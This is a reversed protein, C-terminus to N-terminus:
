PIEPFVDRRDRRAGNWPQLYNVGDYTHELYANVLRMEDATYQSRHCAFSEVGAALDQPEFPVRLTLLSDAVGTVGPRAAPATRLRSAPLGAYFLDVAFPLDGGQVIETVVDGTLRHDPHGTGGERGFTIIVAPQVREMAERLATRLRSLSAFSALGADELELRHIRRIGLKQAACRVEAVRADALPKGAPIGAHERVGRSGDTAVVLHVERGARTLRNLLPGIVREDDPHAFVAMVPRSAPVRGAPPAATAVARQSLEARSRQEGGRMVHTVSRFARIDTTPDDALLLLDALKGPELTGFDQERGMARAGNRTAMVIIDAAPLGAAEMAEMEQYISPGHLTLPNGADTAVVIRGGAAHVRRLNEAMIGSRAGVFELRRFATEASRRDAPILARLPEVNAIKAVTASDVCGGPDDVPHPVGLEIASRARSANRGVVLTPAYVADNRKLLAIFEDDVPQNEVSHVLLVAGARLAVKAERLGTAHVILDLGAQTAEAGVERMRADLEERREPRPALYWVKVAQAGMAKLRAVSHKVDSSTAMPLFTYIEDDVDLATRGAHTILPGAARVHPMNRREAEAPLRTTWPHGGVDYVATIGSCLYARWWREPNARLARATQPYPYISPAPLGDPRGDVWGTQSFHVHADVLGPTVFKGSVDERRADAPVPCQGATGVCALRQGIVVVVGNAIPPKGTGDVITGGTLVTVGQAMAAEGHFGALGGAVLVSMLGTRM